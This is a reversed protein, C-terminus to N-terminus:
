NELLILIWEDLFNWLNVNYMPAKNSFWITADNEENSTTDIVIYGGGGSTFIIYSNDLSLKVDLNLDDIIEWDYDSMKDISLAPIIGCSTTFEIFGNHLNCYFNKLSAPYKDWGEIEYKEQPLLGEFYTTVDNKLMIEYLVAIGKESKIFEINSLNDELYSITNKLEEKCYEKWFNITKEVRSKKDKTDFINRWLANTIEESKYNDENLIVVNNRFKSLYESLKNNM